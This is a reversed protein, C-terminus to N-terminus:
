PKLEAPPVLRVRFFSSGDEAFELTLDGDMTRMIARSIPLGLGAGRELDSRRGRHFKEFVATAEERSVGGGNDIIDINLSDREVSLRVQIEPASSHNYKVANSLLNILVQRMRDENAQVRPAPTAFQRHVIISHKRMVGSVTDLAAEIVAEADVPGMPLDLNGAELRGIDLIEDLLRTLRQSEDHIITIFKRKEEDSIDEPSLLIESFSRISTMPTRLEHSVQSLFEDKQTDLSRLRENAEGLQTATQSLEASKEALQRSTVILSQAEDAIDMLEIM